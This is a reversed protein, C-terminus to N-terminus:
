EAPEEDDSHTVEDEFRLDEMFSEENESPPEMWPEETPDWEADCVEDSDFPNLLVSDNNSCFDEGFIDDQEQLPADEDFPDYAQAPGESGYTNFSGERRSVYGMVEPQHPIM